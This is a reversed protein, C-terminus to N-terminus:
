INSSLLSLLCYDETEREINVHKGDKYKSKNSNNKTVLKSFDEYIIDEKFM